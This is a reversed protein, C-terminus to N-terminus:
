PADAAYHVRWRRGAHAFIAHGTEIAELTWGGPATEGVRLPAGDVVLWPEAGVHWASQIAPPEPPPAPPGGITLGDTLLVTGPHTRDFWALAADLRDVDEEAVRGSLMVAEDSTALEVGPMEAEALRSRLADVPTEHRTPRPTPVAAPARMQAARPPVAQNSGSLTGPIAALAVAMLAAAVPGGVRAPARRPVPVGLTLRAGGVEIECGHALEAEFGPEIRGLGVAEVAGGEARVVVGGASASLRAHRAALGADCLVLDCAPDAGLTISAARPALAAGAHRGAAVTIVPLFQM